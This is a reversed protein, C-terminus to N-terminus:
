RIRTELSQTELDNSANYTDARAADLFYQKWLETEIKILTHFLRAMELHGNKRSRMYRESLLPNDNLKLRM